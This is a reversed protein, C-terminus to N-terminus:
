LGRTRFFSAPSVITNTFFVMGPTASNTAGATNTSVPIWLNNPYVLNTARESVYSQDPIGAYKLYAMGNTLIAYVLNSGQPDSIYLSIINTASGGYPDSVSYQFSDWVNSTSGTSTYVFGNALNSVTGAGPSSVVAFTLPDGDADTAFPNKGPNNTLTITGGLAVSNTVAKAEPATNFTITM